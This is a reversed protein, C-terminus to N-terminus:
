YLAGLIASAFCSPFWTGVRIPTDLTSLVVGVRTATFGTFPRMSTSIGVPEPVTEETETTVALPKAPVTAVAVVVGAIVRVVVAVPM